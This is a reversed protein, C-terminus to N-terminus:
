LSYTPLPLLFLLLRFLEHPWGKSACILTQIIRFMIANRFSRNQRTWNNESQRSRFSEAMFFRPYRLKLIAKFICCIYTSLTCVCFIHPPLPPWDLSCKTCFGVPRRGVPTHIISISLWLQVSLSLRCRCRSSKPAAVANSHSPM